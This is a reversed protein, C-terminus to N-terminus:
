HNDLVFTLFDLEFFLGLCKLSLVRFVIVLVVLLKEILLLFKLFRLLSELVLLQCQSTINLLILFQVKLGLTRQSIRLRFQLSLLSQPFPLKGEKLLLLLVRLFCEGFALGFELLRELVDLLVVASALM